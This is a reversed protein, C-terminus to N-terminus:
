LQYKLRLAATKARLLELFRDMRVSHQDRRVFVGTRFTLLKDALPRFVLGERKLQTASSSVLAIGMGHSVLQVMGAFSSSEAAINLHVGLSLLYRDIVKRFDPQASRVLGIVRESLLDEPFVSHKASLRHGKPLCVIVAEEMIEVVILEEDKVPLLGVGAHFRGSLVGHVASMTTTSTLHIQANVPSEFHLGWLLALLDSALDASYGVRFRGAKRREQQRALAQARRLHQMSILVESVFMQGATTVEVGHATRLFLQAGVDEELRRIQRGLAPQSLHLRDAARSFNREQAVALACLAQLPVLSSMACWAPNEAGAM